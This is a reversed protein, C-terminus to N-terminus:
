EYTAIIERKLDEKVMDSKHFEFERLSKMEINPAVAHCVQCEYLTYNKYETFIIKDVSNCLPCVFMHEKKLCHSLTSILYDRDRIFDTHFNRSRLKFLDIDFLTYGDM